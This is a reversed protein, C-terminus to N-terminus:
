SPFFCFTKSGTHYEFRVANKVVDDFSPGNLIAYVEGVREYHLIWVVGHEVLWLRGPNPDVFERVLDNLQELFPALVECLAEQEIHPLYGRDLRIVLLEQNVACEIQDM